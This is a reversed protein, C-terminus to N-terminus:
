RFPNQSDALTLANKSNPQGLEKGAVVMGKWVLQSRIRYGISRFLEEAVLLSPYQASSQRTARVPRWTPASSM